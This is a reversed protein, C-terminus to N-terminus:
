NSYNLPAFGSWALLERIAVSRILLDSIQIEREDAWIIFLDRSRAVCYKQPELKDYCLLVYLDYVLHQPINVTNSILENIFLNILARNFLKELKM